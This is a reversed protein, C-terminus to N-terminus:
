DSPPGEDEDTVVAGEKDNLWVNLEKQEAVLVGGKEVTIGTKLYGDLKMMTEQYDLCVRLAAVRSSAPNSVNRAISYSQAFLNDLRARYEEKAVRFAEDSKWKARIIAVDQSLQKATATFARKEKLGDVQVGSRMMKALMELSGPSGALLYERVVRRRLGMGAGAGKRVRPLRGPQDTQEPRCTDPM